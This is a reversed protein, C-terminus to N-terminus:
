ADAVPLAELFGKLHSPSGHNTQDDAAIFALFEELMVAAQAPPTRRDITAIQQLQAYAEPSIIVFFRVPRDNSTLGM